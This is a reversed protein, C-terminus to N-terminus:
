SGAAAARSTLRDSPVPLSAKIGDMGISALYDQAEAVDEPSRCYSLTLFDVEFESCAPPLLPSKANAAFPELLLTGPRPWAPHMGPLHPRPSRM